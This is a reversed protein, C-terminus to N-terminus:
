TKWLSPGLAMNSKTHIRHTDANDDMEAGTYLNNHSSEIMQVLLNQGLKFLFM